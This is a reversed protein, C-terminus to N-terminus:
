KWPQNLWALLTDGVAQLSEPAVKDVTDESTHWYPYDFDIMDVAPIGAELFPVHDDLIRPGPAEVIRDGYGLEEAAQWIQAALQPDSNQELTINLDADGVMDVIVAAEPRGELAQVFARSGLIWDWGPIRGNDEGDFFVLWVRKDLDAPLVRALELLVAVGSAGDNAGPVPQTQKEPDPDRDALLRSDYHAGLIIWPAVAEEQDERRAIINRVEHGGSRTKQIESQWGAEQLERRIFDIIQAHAASGPTRPGFSVQNIVDQYAREEQFSAQPEETFPPPGETVIPTFTSAATGVPLPQTEV